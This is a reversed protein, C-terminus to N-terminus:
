LYVNIKAIIVYTPLKQQVKYSESINETSNSVKQALILKHLM